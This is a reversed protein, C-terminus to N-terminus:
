DFELMYINLIYFVKGERFGGGNVIGAGHSFSIHIHVVYDSPSNKAHDPAVFDPNDKRTIDGMFGVVECPGKVSLPCNLPPFDFSGPNAVSVDYISGVGAIIAGGKWKKDLLFQHISEMIDQGKKLSLVHLIAM